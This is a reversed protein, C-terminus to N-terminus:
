HLSFDVSLMFSRIEIYNNVEYNRAYNQLYTGGISVRFFYFHLFCAVQKHTLTELMSKLQDLCDNIRQRRRREM